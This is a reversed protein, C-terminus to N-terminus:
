RDGGIPTAITRKLKKKDFGISLHNLAMAADLHPNFEDRTSIDTIVIKFLRSTNSNTLSFKDVHPAGVADASTKSTKYILGAAVRHWRCLGATETRLIMM